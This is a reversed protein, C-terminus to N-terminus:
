LEDWHLREAWLTLCTLAWERGGWREEHQWVRASSDSSRLGALCTRAWVLVCQTKYIMGTTTLRARLAPRYQWKTMYQDEAGSSLWDEWTVCEKGENDGTQESEWLRGRWCCRHEHSLPNSLKNLVHLRIKKKQLCLFLSWFRWISSTNFWIQIVTPPCSRSSNLTPTSELQASSFLFKMGFGFDKMIWIENVCQRIKAREWVHKRSRQHSNTNQARRITRSSNFAQVKTM